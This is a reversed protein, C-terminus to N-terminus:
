ETLLFLDVCFKMTDSRKLVIKKRLRERYRHRFHDIYDYRDYLDFKGLAHFIKPNAFLRYDTTFGYSKYSRYSGNSGYEM